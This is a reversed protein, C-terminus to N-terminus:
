KIKQNGPLGENISKLAQFGDGVVTTKIDGRTVLIPKLLIVLVDTKGNNVTHFGRRNEGKTLRVAEEAAAVGQNSIPKGLREDCQTDVAQTTRVGLSHTTM